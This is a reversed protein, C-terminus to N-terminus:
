ARSCMIETQAHKMHADAQGPEKVDIMVAREYEDRKLWGQENDAFNCAFRDFNSSVAPSLWFHLAPILDNQTIKM